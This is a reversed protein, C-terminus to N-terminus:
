WDKLPYKAFLKKIFNKAEKNDLMGNKDTDFEKMTKAICEGM